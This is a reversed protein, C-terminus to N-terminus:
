IGAPGVYAPALEVLFEAFERDEGTASLMLDVVHAHERPLAARNERAWQKASTLDRVDYVSM